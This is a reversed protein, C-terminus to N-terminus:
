FSYKNEIWSELEQTNIIVSTPIIKMICRSISLYHILQRILTIRLFICYIIILIILILLLMIILTKSNNLFNNLDSTVIKEFNNGVPLIYKYFIREMLQFYDTEFLDLKITTTDINEKNNEIRIFYEKKINNVIDSIVRILSDTNNGSIILTDNLCKNYEIPDDEIDIVAGCANLLFNKNYFENVKKFSKIGNIINLMLENNSINSYDSINKNKNQCNSMFCKIEVTEMSAKILNGFIYNEALLLENTDIVMNNSYIFIPILLGLLVCVIYIILLYSKKLIKLPIIKKTDSNFGLSNVIKKNENENKSNIDDKNELNEQHNEENKKTKENNEKDTEESNTDRLQKLATNFNNITKITEEVQELRIKTVKNLGGALVRNTLCLLIYYLLCLILMLGSYIIFSIIAPTRKKENYKKLIDPINTIKKFHNPIINDYGNEIIIFLIHELYIVRENKEKPNLKQYNDLAEQTINFNENNLFSICNSLLQAMAMPFSEKKIKNNYKTYNEKIYSINIKDWYLNMLNNKNLYKSADKELAENSSLLNFYLIKAFDKMRNYYDLITEEENEKYNNFKFNKNLINKNITKLSIFISVIESTWLCNQFLNINILSVDKLIQYLQLFLLIYVIGYILTFLALLIIIIKIYKLIFFNEINVLLNSKIEEIRNKKVLGSDFGSQSIQSSNEDKIVIDEKHGYAISMEKIDDKCAQLAKQLKYNELALKIFNDTQEKLEM